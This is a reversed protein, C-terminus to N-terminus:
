SSSKSKLLFTEQKLSRVQKVTHSSNLLPDIEVLTFKTLGERIKLEKLGETEICRAAKIDRDETFGCSCSYTRVSVHHKNKKGCKPCLQTSPFFRDVKIFTHSKRELDRMIGGLLSQQVSRGYLGSHWGKINEDQVIVIKYKNVIKSVIKNKKDKKRNTLKHYEKNVQNKMKFYNKSGKVRKKLRRSSKRLRKNERYKLNIKDGNSLTLTTALGFDIGTSEEDFEKEEKPLYCTVKLYFDNHRTCLTASTFEAEKPIQDFGNIRFKYKCGQLKLRKGDDFFRYTKNYQNLVIAKYNSTFKLRGMRFRKRKGQQKKKKASLSKIAYEIKQKIAQRMQSSLVKLEREEKERDKDLVIITKTKTDFDFINETSLIHNYLWKAELFLRRLYQLKEASLHSKDIKLEFTNCKQTKRKLRTKNVKEIWSNMKYMFFLGKVLM